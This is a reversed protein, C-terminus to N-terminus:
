PGSRASRRMSRGQLVAIKADIGNSEEFWEALKAGVIKRRGGTSGPLSRTIKPRRRFKPEPVKVSLM